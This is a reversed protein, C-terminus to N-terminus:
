NNDKAVSDLDLPISLNLRNVNFDVLCLSILTPSSALDDINCLRLLM